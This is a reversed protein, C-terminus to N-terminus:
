FIQKKTSDFLQYTWYFSMCNLLTSLISLMCLIGNYKKLVNILLIITIMPGVFLRIIIWSMIFMIDLTTYVIGTTRNRLIRLFTTGETLTAIYIVYKINLLNIIELLTMNDKILVLSFNVIPLYYLYLLGIYCLMHHLLIIEPTKVSFPLTYIWLFDLIIYTVFICIFITENYYTYNILLNVNSIYIIPLWVLNWIDHLYSINNNKIALYASKILNLM